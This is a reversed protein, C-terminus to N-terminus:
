NKFFFEVQNPSNELFTACTTALIKRLLFKNCIRWKGPLKIPPFFELLPPKSTPHSKWRGLGGALFYGLFTVFNKGISPVTGMNAFTGLSYLLPRPSRPNRLFREPIFGRRPAKSIKLQSFNFIQSFFSFSIQGCCWLNFVWLM